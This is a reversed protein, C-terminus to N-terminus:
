GEAEDTELLQKVRREALILAGDVTEAHLSQQETDSEPGCMGALELQRVAKSLHLLEEDGEVARVVDDPVVDVDLASWVVGRVPKDLTV